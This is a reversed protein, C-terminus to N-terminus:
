GKRPDLAEHLDLRPSNSIGIDTTEIGYRGDSVIRDITMEGRILGAFHSGRRAILVQRSLDVCPLQQLDAGPVLWITMVVCGWTIADVRVHALTWGRQATRVERPVYM